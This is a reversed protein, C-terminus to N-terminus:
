RFADVVADLEDPLITRLNLLLGGDQIRVIVAPRRERLRAAWAEPAGDGPQVLVAASPLVAGPLAGGGVQADASICTAVARDELVNRLQHTLWLARDTLEHADAALMRLVPVEAWAEDPTLYHRLTAALAALDLRDIRVARALPHRRCRDVAEARGVIIGAQPGGLLKDGSFTVLACGAAVAEQVTPEAPLGRTRVDVLAGSGLDYMVPIGRAAGLGVLDRVEVEHVFGTMSFNSRHVKLLMATNPTIAREYDHRYTKNTTGVEVLRAGSQAMVDPMRFAGGIEVLEGRSVIVERGAALAALGLLVAAANNNVAFGAEGGTTIELLGEVHTQRSGRDGTEPDIELLTYGALAARVAEQAAQSLPARGLNTHIIIGTANVARTLRSHGSWAVARTSEEIVLAPSWEAPATGDILRRRAGEVVQRVARAALPRPIGNLRGGAELQQLVREVSPLQRLRPDQSATV